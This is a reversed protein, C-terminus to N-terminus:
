SLRSLIFALKQYKDAVFYNSVGELIQSLSYKKKMEKAAFVMLKENNDKFGVEFLVLYYALFHSFLGNLTELDEGFILYDEFKENRSLNAIMEKLVYFNMEKLSLAMVRRVIEKKRYDNDCLKLIKFLELATFSNTVKSMMEDINRAIEREKTESIAVCPVTKM